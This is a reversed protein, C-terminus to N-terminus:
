LNTGKPKPRAQHMHGTRKSRVPKFLGDETIEFTSSIGEFIEDIASTDRVPLELPQIGYDKCFSIAKESVSREADTAGKRENQIYEAYTRITSLLEGHSELLALKWDEHVALKDKTRDISGEVHYSATHAVRAGDMVIRRDEEAIRRGSPVSTELHLLLTRLDKLVNDFTSGGNASTAVTRFESQDRKSM